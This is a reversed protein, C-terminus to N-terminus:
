GLEDWRSRKRYIIIGVIILVVAVVGVVILLVGSSFISGISGLGGLPNWTAEVSTKFTLADNYSENGKSYADDAKTRAQAFNGNTLADDAASIYSVAVERKTIIESLRADSSTSSNGQFYAILADVNNIPGQADSIEKEAWAKDLLTEGDSITSTATTVASLADSYQTSPLSQATNIKSQADNYKAEAASTDIDMAAKEDIETRFQSLQSNANAIATTVDNTNVVLVSQTYKTDSAHGNSDVDSVQILTQNSTATVAPATGELTVTVSVDDGSKYTLLFSNINVTKTSAETLGNAIDNVNIIYSWKPKELQTYLQLSNATTSGSPMQVKFSIDVTTGPTLAGSPSISMSNVTYAWSATPVIILFLATIWILRTLEKMM